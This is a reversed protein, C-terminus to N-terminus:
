NNLFNNIFDMLFNYIILMGKYNIKDPTDSIRHYDNHIGTSVTLSPINHKYFIYSDTDIFSDININVKINSKSAVEKIHTMFMNNEDTRISVIHTEESFRGLMDFNLMIIISDSLNTHKELWYKSGHLGEEHGSFLVLAVDFDQKKIYFHKFLSIAMAVGSANDDAGPHIENKHWIEKSYISNPPLHDYHAALIIIKKSSQKPWVWFNHATVNSDNRCCYTFTDTNLTYDNEVCNSLHEKLFDITKIEYVSGPYRGGMSDHALTQIISQFAMTKDNEPLTDNSYTQGQLLHASLYFCLLWMLRVYIEIHSIKSRM